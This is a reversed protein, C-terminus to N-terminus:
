EFVGDVLLSVFEEDSMGLLGTCIQETHEGILPAPRMPKAPTKSLIFSRGLHTYTGMEPHELPWFLGRQRLQPDEYVDKVNEVIGAPVGATQLLQMVQEPTKDATWGGIMKDIDDELLKRRPLSAYREDAALADEGLARCLSRWQEDTKVAIACWRDDGQCPYVGHPCMEPHRNGTKSPERGNVSRDLLAPMIFYLATELQSLDLYQGKGTKNRRDIAAILAAAAFRPAICDTYPSVGVPLPSGGPWGIFNPLGAMAALIMGFASMNASPGEPGFGSQRLYIVDPRVKRFEDYTLGWKEMVGPTFNEMVIGCKAVLQRAIEVGKPHEMNLTMSYMNASFHNFYGGRNLGPKGDKFPTSIRLTCPHKASELRIVTAGYDAFLKMTLPGVIAWGFSAITLGKFVGQPPVGPFAGSM